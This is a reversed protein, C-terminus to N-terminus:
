VVGPKGVESLTVNFASRSENATVLQLTRGPDAVSVKCPTGMGPFWAGDPPGEHVRIGSVGTDAVGATGPVYLTLVVDATPTLFAVAQRPGAGPPATVQWGQFSGLDYHAVNTGAAAASWVSVAYMRNALLPVSVQHGRPVSGLALGDVNVKLGTGTTLHAAVMNERAAAVDYLWCDRLIGQAAATLSRVVTADKWGWDLTWRRPAYRARQVYRVGGSSVFESGGREVEVQVDPRVRVLPVMGGLPGFLFGSM